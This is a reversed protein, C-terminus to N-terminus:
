LLMFLLLARLGQETKQLTHEVFFNLTFIGLTVNRREGSETRFVEEIGDVTGNNKIVFIYYSVNAM